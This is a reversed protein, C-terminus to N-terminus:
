SGNGVTRGCHCLQDSFQSVRYWPVRLTGEPSRPNCYSAWTPRLGARCRAALFACALNQIMLGSCYGLVTNGERLAAIVMEGKKTEKLCSWLAPSQCVTLNPFQQLTSDGNELSLHVRHFM